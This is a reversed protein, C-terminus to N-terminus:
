SPVIVSKLGEEILKTLPVISKGFEIIVKGKFAKYTDMFSKKIKKSSHHVIRKVKKLYDRKFNDHLKKLQAKSLKSNKANFLDVESELV